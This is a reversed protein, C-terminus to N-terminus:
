VTCVLSGSGSLCKGRALFCQDSSIHEIAILAKSEHVIVSVDHIIEFHNFILLMCHRYFM